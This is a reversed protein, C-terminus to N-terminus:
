ARASTRPSCRFRCGASSRAGSTATGCRTSAHRSRCGPRRSPSRSGSTSTRRDGAAARGPSLLAEAPDRDGAITAFWHAGEEGLTVIRAGTKGSPIALTRWRADFHRVDLAALEGYRAGSHFAATLLDAFPPDQKRAERILRAVEPESFHDERRRDAGRFRELRRWASDSTIGNAEDAFAANLAAKLNAIVRNVTARSRGEVLGDRWLRLESLTLEEVARDGLGRPGKLRGDEDRAPCPTCGAAHTRPQPRAM